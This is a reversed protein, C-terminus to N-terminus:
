ATRAEANVPRQARAAVPRHLNAHETKEWDSQRTAMRIMARLASISLLLQYPYYYILMRLRFLLPLRLNYARTFEQIGILNIILQIFLLYVPMWSLIALPVPVKQTAWIFMGLPLFFVIAGQFVSNMLIYIAGIRQKLTPLRLWDYKFFIEYFGQCWRTRQRIFQDVTAPTEEQTAQQAEYVIQITAGMQTLRIGIDADETLCLEDWARYGKETDQEALRDLWTKKFFVTNGGLPTVNLKHTFAHLGSKFWFFYELVNFASFWTSRFNMLQVGSQVVDAGDRQMVTNVVHYIDRHPQDEADFVCVVDNAAERYGRNLGNPKNKPGDKFTLLRVNAPAGAQAAKEQIDAIARQAVAITEDDDEDRILVLIEKMHDPYDINHVAMITDYLVAAERRAPLLATFSFHPQAYTKPAGSREMRAPNVWSYTMWYVTFVGQPLLLLAMGLIIIAVARSHQQTLLDRLPQPLSDLPSSLIDGLSQAQAAGAEDPPPSYIALGTEQSLVLHLPAPEGGVLVLRPADQEPTLGLAPAAAVGGLAPLQRLVQVEFRIADHYFGGTETEAAVELEYTGTTLMGTDLPYEYPPGDLRALPVGNLLLELEGFREGEAVDVTVTVLSSFPQVEDAQLEDPTVALATEAEQPLGEAQAESPSAPGADLAPSAAGLNLNQFAADLPPINPLLIDAYDPELLPPAEVSPDLPAIGAGDAAHLRELLATSLEEYIASLEDGSRVPFFMAGTGLALEQLYFRDVGFGLGITYVQVGAEVALHLADDRQAVSQGGYEGGDGLLIVVRNAADHEAALQVARLAGDYLATVGDPTLSDIAAVLADTATSHTQAVNVSNGFTVVAVPMAGNIHRVFASLSARAQEMPLGVMSQSVDVALVVSTDGPHPALAPSLGAAMHIRSFAAALDVPNSLAIMQGNGYGALTQLYDLDAEEGIGITFTTLGSSQVAQLAAARTTRSQAASQTGDTILIMVGRGTEAQSALTAARATAEYLASMGEASLASVAALVEDSDSTFNQVVEVRDDFTILAVPVTATNALFARIADQVAALRAGAMSGSTDVVLVISSAEAQPTQDSSGQAHLDSKLVGFIVSLVILVLGLRSRM